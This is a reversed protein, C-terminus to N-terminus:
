KSRDSPDCPLVDGREAEAKAARVADGLRDQTAAFREDWEREARIEDLILSAIAAQATEPLRAIEAIAKELLANMAGM